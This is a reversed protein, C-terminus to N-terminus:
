LVAKLARTCKEQHMRATTHRITSTMLPGNSPEVDGLDASANVGGTCPVEM